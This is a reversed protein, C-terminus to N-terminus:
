NLVYCYRIAYMPLVHVDWVSKSSVFIQWNIHMRVHVYLVCNFVYRKQTEKLNDEESTLLARAVSM